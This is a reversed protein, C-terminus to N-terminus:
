TLFEDIEKKIKYNFFWKQIVYIAYSAIIPAVIWVTPADRQIWYILLGGILGPLIIRWLPIGLGVKRCLDRSTYYYYKTRDDIYALVNKNSSVLTVAQGNYLPLNLNRIYLPWDEGSDNLRFVVDTYLTSTVPTNLEGGHAESYKDAHIVTAPYLSLPIQVNSVTIVKEM